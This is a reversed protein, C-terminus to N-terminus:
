CVDEFSLRPDHRARELYALVRRALEATATEARVAEQFLGLAALAERHVGTADFIWVMEGALRKVELTQGEELELAALDLSVLAADYGMRRGAFEKRVRQFCARAEDRRGRGAAVRGRLWVVRLLDLENGLPVALEQVGPLLFEAEGFQGMQCLAAVLNFRLVCRDRREGAADVLPAAERLTALAAEIEGAQELTFGRNLLIRGEAVPPACARARDLLKLAGEFDRQDRSLSAERDLLRWEELVGGPDSGAGAGWLKWAQSFAAAAGKLDTGVRRANGIYAWVFGLLRWRWGEEGPALEAIRLALAALEAAKGADDAAAQESALCVREALAWTQYAGSTEVLRRREAPPKPQLEAWRLAAEARARRARGSRAVKVLHAFTLDVVALGLRAALEQARRSEAPSLDVPSRGGEEGDRSLAADALLALDVDASDYRMVQALAALRDRDLNRWGKELDCIVAQSTGTAQALQKQTWDRRTRLATLARSLRTPAPRSRRPM